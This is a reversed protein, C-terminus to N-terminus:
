HRDAAIDRGRLQGMLDILKAPDEYLDRGASLEYTEAQKLLTKLLRLHDRMTYRDFVQPGSQALLSRMAHIRPMTELASRPRPTIRPFIILRPSCRAMHREPYAKTVGITRRRGGSSDPEESGLTFEAYHKARAGDIYFSKRCALAEIGESGTRLLVADDSLYNWGARILGIALTSKGSGSPAVLLLGEGCKTALGAAHLSYIGLPRLLKLIAFCWFNAQVVAPKAFFCPALRAHAQGFHGRLHLGSRGDTLFFDEGLEFGRFDDTRLTERCDPPTDFPGNHESVSLYLAPIGECQRVPRWSLEELLRGLAPRRAGESDVRLVVRDLSYLAMRRM